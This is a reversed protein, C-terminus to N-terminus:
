QFKAPAVKLSIPANDGEKVDVTFKKEVYGAKEHWIIFDHKGVPLNDIHFKGDADTIAAYPHDVVVWWGTMYTHIDCSVKVPRSEGLKM